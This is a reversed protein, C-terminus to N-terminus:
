QRFCKLDVEISYYLDYSAINGDDGTYHAEVSQIDQAIDSAKDMVVKVRNDGKALVQIHINAKLKQYHSSFGECVMVASIDEDLPIAVSIPIGALKSRKESEDSLAQVIGNSREGMGEEKRMRADLENASVDDYEEIM